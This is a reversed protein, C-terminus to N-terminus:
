SEVGIADDSIVHAKHRECNTEGTTIPPTLRRKKPSTVVVPAYRSPLMPMNQTPSSATRQFRFACHCLKTCLPSLISIIYRNNCSVRKVLLPLVSFANPSDGEFSM